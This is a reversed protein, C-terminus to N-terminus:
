ERPTTQDILEVGLADAIERGYRQAADRYFFRLTTGCAKRGDSFPVVVWDMGAWGPGHPGTVFVSTAKHAQFRTGDRLTLTVVDEHCTACYYTCFAPGDLDSWRPASPAIRCNCGVCRCTFPRRDIDVPQLRM